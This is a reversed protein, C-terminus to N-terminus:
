ENLYELFRPNARIFAFLGCSLSSVILEEEGDERNRLGTQDWVAHMVEHWATEREQDPTQGKEVRILGESKRTAGTSNPLFEVVKYDFTFPGIKLKV